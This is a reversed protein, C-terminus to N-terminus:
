KTLPVDVIVLSHPPLSIIGKKFTLAIKKPVVRNPHEIDNYADPSEGTLVTAQYTGDVLLDDMKLTCAVEESPHRNMLAIAWKKGSSDVTAIADVMAVSSSGHTLRDSYVQAKAVRGKLLNAYMAMTHFHTRKVIGKPHAYLPGTQNVLCAINAMAVDDSNRLCANFFSACFLADAMTYLSPELSKDRAKILSIIAPDQNDVKRPHHGSFGPHHWSRLNWEDFAIKIRGRMGADDISKVVASIHSDPKESLMMCSLYDPTQHEQFNPIWYEHVSLLDLYKGATNFLYPEIHARPGHSGSCTVQISQDVMKMAAATDRVKDIYGKGGKENGVSWFRVNFPESHGNRKRMDALEGTKDNCYAVWDAMEQISALSNQCIYPEAGLRRCLEIFEHTGFTNPELVGWRDDDYPQRNHGVGKQWHYSDVFCGGPWRIVPVKLEKVAKIVDLRFGKEDALPSGPEFFGGYIQKGLHEIFGGFIMPDYTKAPEDAAIVITAQNQSSQAEMNAAAACMSPSVLAVIGLIATKLMFQKGNRPRVPHSSVQSPASSIQHLMQNYTVAGRLAMGLNM